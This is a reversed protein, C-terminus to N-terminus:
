RDILSIIAEKDEESDVVFTIGGSILGKNIEESIPSQKPIVYNLLGTYVKIRERPELNKLDAEFQEKGDNIIQTIWEKLECNIKNPTGKERGGLRGRGDNINRGM